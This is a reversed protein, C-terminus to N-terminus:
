KSVYTEFNLFHSYNAKGLAETSCGTASGKQDWFLLVVVKAMLALTGYGPTEPPLNSSVNYVRVEICGNAIEEDPFEDLIRPVQPDTDFSPIYAWFLAPNKNKFDKVQTLKRQGLATLQSQDRSFRSSNVASSTVRVLGVAVLGAIALAIIVEWLSQGQCNNKKM